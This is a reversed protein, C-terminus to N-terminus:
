ATDRCLKDTEYATKILATKVKGFLAFLEAGCVLSKEQRNEIWKVSQGVATKLLDNIESETMPLRLKKQLVENEVPVYYTSAPSNLPSLVYYPRKPTGKSFSINEIRSIKCIGYTDYVLCTDPKYETHM